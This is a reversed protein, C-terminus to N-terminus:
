STPNKLAQECASVFSDHDATDLFTQFDLVTRCQKGAEIHDNQQLAIKSLMWSQYAIARGYVERAAPRSSGAGKFNKQYIAVSRTSHDRALDYRKEEAYLRGLEALTAAMEPADKDGNKRLELAKKYYQEADDNEGQAMALRGISIMWQWRESEHHHGDSVPALFDRARNLQQEAGAYDGKYQAARAAEEATWFNDQFLMEARTAADSEKGPTGFTVVVLTVVTAPKGDVQFPQYKWRNVSEIAAPALMPHGTVLRRVSATGSEDISIELIVNGQIRATEALPPYAASAKNILHKASEDPPIRKPTTQGVVAVALALVTFILRM